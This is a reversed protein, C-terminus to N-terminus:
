AEYLKFKFEFMREVQYEIVDDPALESVGGIIPAAAIGKKIEMIKELVFPKGPMEMQHMEYYGNRYVLKLVLTCPTELFDVRIKFVKKGDEDHAFCGTAAIYFPTNHVYINTYKATGFGLEFHYSEDKQNYEVYFKGEDISFALSDFGQSYNNEVVQWVLPLIGVTATRRDNSVLVKGDLEYCEHPLFGLEYKHLEHPTLTVFNRSVSIKKLTRELHKRDFSDKHISDPFDKNFYKDVIAFYNSQQFLEDNGANNVIVIGNRKFCWVNQGLM